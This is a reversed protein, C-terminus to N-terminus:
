SQATRGSRGPGRGGRCGAFADTPAIHFVKSAGHAGLAAFNEDSAAGLYVASLEGGLERAKTLIELGVTAPGEETEEVFVWTNPM